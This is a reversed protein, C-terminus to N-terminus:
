IPLSFYKYSHRRYLDALGALSPVAVVYTLAFFILWTQWFLIRGGYDAFILLIDTENTPM